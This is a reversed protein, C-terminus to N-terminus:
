ESFYQSTNGTKGQETAKWLPIQQKNLKAAMAVRMAYARRNIATRILSNFTGRGGKANGVTVEPLLPVETKDEGIANGAGEPNKAWAPCTAKARIKLAAFYYASKLIGINKQKKKIYSKIDKDKAVIAFPEKSHSASPKLSGRGDDQRLSTHIRGITAQDGPEIFVPSKGGAHTKQFQTWRTKRGSAAGGGSRKEWMKFVDYRGIAAIQGSTAKEIPQFIHYVSKEVNELGKVKSNSTMGEGPSTFPRTYGIMDLCFLGAQKRITEAMTKGLVKSYDRLHALFASDDVIVGKNATLSM